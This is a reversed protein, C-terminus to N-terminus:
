NENDTNIDEENIKDIDKNKEFPHYTLNKPFIRLELDKIIHRNLSLITYIQYATFQSFESWEFKKKKINLQRNLQQHEEIM